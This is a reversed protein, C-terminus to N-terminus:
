RQLPVDHGCAEEVAGRARIIACETEIREHEALGYKDELYNALKAPTSWSGLGAVEFSGSRPDIVLEAVRRGHIRLGTAYRGGRQLVPYTYTDWQGEAMATRISAALEHLTM